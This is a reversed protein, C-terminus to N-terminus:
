RRSLIRKDLEEPSIGLDRDRDLETDRRLADAIGGDDDHLVGRLSDLLRAALVARQQEPLGIALQEVESITPM